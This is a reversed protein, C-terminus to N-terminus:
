KKIDNFNCEWLLVNHFQGLGGPTRFKSRCGRRYGNALCLGQSCMTAKFFICSECFSKQGRPESRLRLPPPSCQLPPGKNLPYRTLVIDTLVYALHSLDFSFFFFFFLPIYIFVCTHSKPEWYLLSQLPTQKKTREGVLCSSLSGSAM